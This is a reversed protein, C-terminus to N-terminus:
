AHVRRRKARLAKMEAVFKKGSIVRGHRVDALAEGIKAELETPSFASFRPKKDKDEKLRQLGARVVESASHYLGTKVEKAVFDQLEPTLVINM